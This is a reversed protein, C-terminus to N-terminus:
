VQHSELNKMSKEKDQVKMEALSLKQQLRDIQAQQDQQNKSDHDKNASYFTEMKKKHTATLEALEQNIREVEERLTM